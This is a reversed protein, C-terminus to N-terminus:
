NPRGVLIRVKRSSSWACWVLKTGCMGGSNALQGGGVQTERSKGLSRDHLWPEWTFTKLSFNGLNGFLADWDDYSTCCTVLRFNGFSLDCAFM